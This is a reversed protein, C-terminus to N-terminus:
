GVAAELVAWSIAGGAAAAMGLVTPRVPLPGGAHPRVGLDPDPDAFGATPGCAAGDAILVASTLMAGGHEGLWAKPTIITPLPGTPWLARLIRAEFRDGPWSGCAGCVM